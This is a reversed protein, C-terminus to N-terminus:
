AAAEFDEGIDFAGSAGAEAVRQADGAEGVHVHHAIRRQAFVGIDRSHHQVIGDRQALFSVSAVRLGSDSAEVTGTLRRSSRTPFILVTSKKSRFETPLSLWRCNM